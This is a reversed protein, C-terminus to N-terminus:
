TKHSNVPIAITHKVVFLWKFSKCLNKIQIFSSTVYFLPISKFNINEREFTLQKMPKRKDESIATM